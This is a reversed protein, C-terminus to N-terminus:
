MFVLTLRVYNAFSQRKSGRKQKWSTGSEKFSLKKSLKQLELAKWVTKVLDILNFFLSFSAKTPLQKESIKM